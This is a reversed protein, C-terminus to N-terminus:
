NSRPEGYLVENHISNVNEEIRLPMLTWSNHLRAASRRPSSTRSTRRAQSHAKHRASSVTFQLRSLAAVFFTCWSDSVATSGARQFSM